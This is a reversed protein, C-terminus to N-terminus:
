ELGRLFNSGFTPDTIVIAYAGDGNLLTRNTGDRKLGRKFLIVLPVMTGDYSKVKVSTTEISSMDIPIPPVLTSDTATQTKPYYAFYAASKTWSTLGFLLGETEPDTWAIFATGDCPLKM